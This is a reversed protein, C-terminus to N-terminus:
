FGEKKRSYQFGGDRKKYADFFKRGTHGFLKERIDEPIDEFEDVDNYPEYEFDYYGHNELDPDYTVWNSKEDVWHINDKQNKFKARFSSEKIVRKIINTLESETLRIIKKM